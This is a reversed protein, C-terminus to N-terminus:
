DITTGCDQCRGESARAHASARGWMEGGCMPCASRGESLVEDWLGGILQELTAADRRRGAPARDVHPALGAPTASPVVPAPPEDPGPASVALLADGGAATLASLADADDPFLRQAAEGGRRGGGEARRREAARRRARRPQVGVRSSM